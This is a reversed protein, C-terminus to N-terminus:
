EEEEDEWIEHKFLIGDQEVLKLNLEASLNTRFSHLSKTSYDSHVDAYDENLQLTGREVVASIVRERNHDDLEVFFIKFRRPNETDFLVHEQIKM